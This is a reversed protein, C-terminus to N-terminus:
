VPLHTLVVIGMALGLVAVAVGVGRYAGKDPAAANFFMSANDKAHQGLWAASGRFDTVLCLGLLILLVAATVMVPALFPGRSQGLVMIAAVSGVLLVGLLKLPLPLPPKSQM